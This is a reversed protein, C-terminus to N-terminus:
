GSFIGKRTKKLPKLNGFLIGMLVLLTGLITQESLIEDLFIWGLIIAIIPTIFSSLSLIVANIRKLLWFYTTFALITGFISLYLISFVADSSFNWESSDELLFALIIMSVGAIMLPPGNMSFPNLHGGWKKVVVAVLGQLVASLLVASLGLLHNDLDVKLGDSFIVLIGVFGILVSILKYKDTQENGLLFLSFLYVFFPFFGFLVSTLGSPIYQEAWYVLWFPIVFSMFGLFFYIKVSRIDKQISTGRLKIILFILISAIFFRLGASIFPTLSDLGIRIAMWTSGWILCIFIYGLLIQLKEKNMM